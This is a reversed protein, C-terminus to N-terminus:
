MVVAQRGQRASIVLVPVAVDAAVRPCIQQVTPLSAPMESSSRRWNEVSLPIVPVATPPVRIGRRLMRAPVVPGLLTLFM